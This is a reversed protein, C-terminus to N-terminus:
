NPLLRQMWFGVFVFGTSKNPYSSDTKLCYVKEGFPPRSWIASGHYNWFTIAVSDYNGGHSSLVKAKAHFQRVFLQAHHFLPPQCLFITIADYSSPGTIPSLAVTAIPLPAAIPLPGALAVHVPL